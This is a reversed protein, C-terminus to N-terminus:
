AFHTQATSAGASNSNSKAASDAVIVRDEHFARRLLTLAPKNIIQQVLAVPHVNGEGSSTQGEHPPIVAGSHRNEQGSSAEDM